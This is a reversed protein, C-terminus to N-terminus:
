GRSSGFLDLQFRYRRPVAVMVDKEHRWLVEDGHVRQMCACFPCPADSSLLGATTEGGVLAALRAWTFHPVNEVFCVDQFLSKWCNPDNRLLRDDDMINNLMGEPVRASNLLEQGRCQSTMGGCLSALVARVTVGSSCFRTDVFHRRKFLYLIVWSVAEM